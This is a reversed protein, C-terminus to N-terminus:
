ARVWDMIWQDMWTAGGDRSVAQQWRCTTPSINDWMGRVKIPTEGDKEDSIFTGVGDVFAGTTGPSTLVGSKANVWFDSWIGQPVDLLRLGLGSFDRAPIRLEEVSGIGGLITWCTAEGKFRDWGDPATAKQMRHTINWSGALFDFEGPKGTGRAVALPPSIPAASPVTRPAAHSGGSALLSALPGDLAAGGAALGVLTHVLTRRPVALDSESM